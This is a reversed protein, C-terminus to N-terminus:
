QICCFSQYAYFSNPIHYFPYYRYFLAPLDRLLQVALKDNHNNNNTTTTTTTTIATNTNSNNSNNNSNNNNQGLHRLLQVAVEPLIIILLRIIAIMDISICINSSSIIIIISIPLDRLLQVAM